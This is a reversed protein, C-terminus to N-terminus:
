MFLFNQIVCLFPIIIVAVLFRLVLDIVRGEFLNLVHM